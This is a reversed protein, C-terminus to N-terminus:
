PSAKDVLKTVQIDSFSPKGGSVKKLEEDSLAVDETPSIKADKKTPPNKSQDKNM